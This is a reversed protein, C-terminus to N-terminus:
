KPQFCDMKLWVTKGTRGSLPPSEFTPTETHLHGSKM